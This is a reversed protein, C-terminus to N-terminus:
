RGHNKTFSFLIDHTSRQTQHCTFHNNTVIASISEQDMLRKTTFVLINRADRSPRALITLKGEEPEYISPQLAKPFQTLNM